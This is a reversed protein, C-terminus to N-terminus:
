SDSHLHLEGQCRKLLLPTAVQLGMGRKELSSYVDEPSMRPSLSDETQQAYDGTGMGHTEALPFRAPGVKLGM